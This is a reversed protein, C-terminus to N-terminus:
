CKVSFSRKHNLPKRGISKPIESVEMIENTVPTVPTPTHLEQRLARLQQKRQEQEQEQQQQTKNSSGMASAFAAAMGSNIEADSFPIPKIGSRDRMRQMQKLLEVEAQRTM